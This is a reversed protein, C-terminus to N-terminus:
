NIKINKNRIEDQSKRMEDNEELKQLQRVKKQHKKWWQLSLEDLLTTSRWKKNKKKLPINKAIKEVM